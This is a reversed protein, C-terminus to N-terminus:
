LKVTARKVFYTKPDSLNRLIRKYERAEKRTKYLWNDFMEGDNSVLIWFKVSM